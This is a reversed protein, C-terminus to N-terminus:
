GGGRGKFSYIKNILDKSGCHLPFTKKKIDYMDKPKPASRIM